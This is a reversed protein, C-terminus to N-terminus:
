SGIRAFTHTSLKVKDKDVKHVDDARLLTNRDIAILKLSGWGWQIPQRM